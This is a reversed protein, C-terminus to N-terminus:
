KESLFGTKQADIAEAHELFVEAGTVISRPTDMVVNPEVSPQHQRLFEQVRKESALFNAGLNSLRMPSMARHDSSRGTFSLDNEPENMEEEDSSSFSADSDLNCLTGIQEYDVHYGKASGNRARGRGRMRINSLLFGLEARTLPAKLRPVFHNVFAQKELYGEGDADLNFLADQVGLFGDSKTGIVGLLFKKRISQTM